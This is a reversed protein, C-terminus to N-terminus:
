LFDGQLIKSFDQFGANWDIHLSQDAFEEERLDRPRLMSFGDRFNNTTARRVSTRFDESVSGALTLSPKTSQARSSWPEDETDSDIKTTERCITPYNCLRFDSVVDRQGEGAGRNKLASSAFSKESSKGFNMDLSVAFSM